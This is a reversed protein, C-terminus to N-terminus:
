VGRCAPIRVESVVGFHDSPWVRGESDARVASEDGFVTSETVGFRCAGSRAFVFDIRESATRADGVVDQPATFGDATPNAARYTDIFGDLLVAQYREDGEVSNFDGVFVDPLPDPQATEDIHELAARVQRLKTDDSLATLENAIHTTYFDFEGFPAALRVRLLTRSDFLAPFNCGLLDPPICLAAEHVRLPLRTVSADAVDLRTLVALGERFESGNGTQAGAASAALETLPGGGGGPQPEPEYHVHPNSAFWCWQWSDGTAGALGSALREIILGHNGSSSVEQLGVVDIDANQIAATLLGVRQEITALGDSDQTHLINYTAVRLRRGRRPGPM